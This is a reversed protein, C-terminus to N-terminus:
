PMLALWFWGCRVTCLALMRAALLDVSDLFSPVSLANQAALHDLMRKKFAMSFGRFPKISKANTFGQFL